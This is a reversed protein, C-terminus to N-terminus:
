SLLKEVMNQFDFKGDPGKLSERFGQFTVGKDPAWTIPRVKELIGRLSGPTQVTKGRKLNVEIIRHTFCNKSFFNLGLWLFVPLALVPWFFPKSRDMLAFFVMPLLSSLCFLIGLCYFIWPSEKRSVISEINQLRTDLIKGEEGFGIDNFLILRDTTLYAHWGSTRKTEVLAEGTGLFIM